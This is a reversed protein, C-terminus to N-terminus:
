KVPTHFSFCQYLAMIVVNPFELFYDTRKKWYEKSNRDYIDDYKEYSDSSGGDGDDDNDDDGTGNNILIVVVVTVMM